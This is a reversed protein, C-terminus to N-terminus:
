LVPGAVGIDELGQTLRAFKEKDDIEELTTCDLWVERAARPVREDVYANLYAKYRLGLLMARAKHEDETM